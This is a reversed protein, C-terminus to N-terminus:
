RSRRKAAAPAAKESSNKTASKTGAAPAAAPKKPSKKSVTKTAAKPSIKAAPKTGAAPKKAPASKASSKKSAAPAKKTGATKATGAASKTKAATKRHKAPLGPPHIGIKPANELLTRIIRATSQGSQNAARTLTGYLAETLRFSIQVRPEPASRKMTAANAHEITTRLLESMSNFGAKRRYARASELLSVPLTICILRKKTIKKAKEKKPEAKM